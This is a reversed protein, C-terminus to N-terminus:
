LMFALIIPLLFGLIIGIVILAIKFKSKPINGGVKGTQGNIINSYKKNKYNFNIRYMPLM